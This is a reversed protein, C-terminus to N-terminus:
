CGASQRRRRMVGLGVLAGGVLFFTAPEPVFTPGPNSSFTGSGAANFQSGPFAKGATVIGVSFNPILSSLSFSANEETQGTFNLYSSTLVLQQLNGATSSGNFSGGSSGISSSFQAGTTSPTGTVSFTGSLLNTGPASGNDIFSFTGSYGPQVYSDGPGCAVGCNGLQTSIAHLTFTADEVGVFPLGPVGSFLFQTAGSASVTTTGAATSVSWQQLAGNSQFYQAFTVPDAVVPFATAATLALIGAIGRLSTFGNGKIQTMKIDADM